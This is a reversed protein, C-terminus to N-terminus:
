ACVRVRAWGAPVPHREFFGTSAVYQMSQEDRVAEIDRLKIVRDHQESHDPLVIGRVLAKSMDPQLHLPVKPAIVDHVRYRAVTEDGRLKLEVHAGRVMCDTLMTYIDDPEDVNAM